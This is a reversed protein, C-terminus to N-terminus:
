PNEKGWYEHAECSTLDRFSTVIVEHGLNLGKDLDDVGGKTSIPGRGTLKLVLAEEGTESGLRGHQLQVHLRGRQPIIEFHWQGGLGGLQLEQSDLSPGPLKEFLGMWDGPENWVTGKPIHNVYTVEWQNPEFDGLGRIDLFKKFQKLTKDFEPRVSKYRPYSGGGQGLWNYDLRGNQIQIM